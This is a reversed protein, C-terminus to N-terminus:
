ADEEQEKDINALLAKAKTANAGASDARFNYFSQATGSRTPINSFVEASDENLNTDQDEFKTTDTSIADVDAFTVSNVRPLSHGHPYKERNELSDTSGQKLIPVINTTDVEFNNKEGNKTETAIPEKSKLQNAIDRISTSGHSNSGSEQIRCRKEWEYLEEAKKLDEQLTAVQTVLAGMTADTETRHSEMDEIVRGAEEIQQFLEKKSEEVVLRAKKESELLNSYEELETKRKTEEEQLNNIMDKQHNIIEEQSEKQLKYAVIDNEM